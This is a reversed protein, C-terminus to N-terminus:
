VSSRRSKPPHAVSNENKNQQIPGSLFHLLTNKGDWYITERVMQTPDQDEVDSRLGHFGSTVIKFRGTQDRYVWESTRKEKFSTQWPVNQSVDKETFTACTRTVDLAKQWRDLLEEATVPAARVSTQGLLCILVAAYSVIFSFSLRM